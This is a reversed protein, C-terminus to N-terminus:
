LEFAAIVHPSRLTVMRISLVYGGITRQRDPSIATSYIGTVKLSPRESSWILRPQELVFFPFTPYKNFDVIIKFHLCLVSFIILIKCKAICYNQKRTDKM